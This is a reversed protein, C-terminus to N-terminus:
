RGMRSQMLRTILDALANTARNLQRKTIRNVTGNYGHARYANVLKWYKKHAQRALRRVTLGPKAADAGDYTFSFDDIRRDVASEHASHMSEEKKSSDTHTPNAVDGVIHALIGLAWSASKRKGKALRNEVRKFWVSAAEDAGGWEDGWRDYVHWWTGSAHDIGDRCDPDDTARLAVGVKVWSADNGAAAIAEDLIWDHTGYSDCGGPGNSWAFAPVGPAVLAVAVLFTVLRTRM